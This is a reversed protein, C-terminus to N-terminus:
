TRRAALRSANRASHYSIGIYGRSALHDYFALLVEGGVWRRHTRLHMGM